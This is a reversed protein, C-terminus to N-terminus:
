MQGKEKLSGNGPGSAVHGLPDWLARRTQGATEGAEWRVGGAQGQAGSAKKEKGQGSNPESFSM